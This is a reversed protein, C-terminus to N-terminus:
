SNNKICQNTAALEDLIIRAASAIVDDRKTADRKHQTLYIVMVIPPCHPPWIIGVDNTTGYKGNGTKDAVIWGRPAGARIKTDGTTNNKMWEQLKKRQELALVNGLALQKLSSAMAAPTTTDRLDGPIASNLEPEWRDLSFKNDHISKAFSTVTKPGGVFRLLINMAANDSYEMAAKCLEAISMGNYINQKTIPAYESKNVDKQDYIIKKQLIAQNAESEKLIASVVMIKGTSCFPFLENARYEIHEHNATNIVYIGLRGGSSAELKSLKQHISAFKIQQANSVLSIFASIFIFTSILLCRQFSFLM